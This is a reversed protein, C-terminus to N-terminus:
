RKQRETEVIGEKKIKLMEVHVHCRYYFEKKKEFVEKQRRRSNELTLPFFELRLHKVVRVGQLYYKKLAISNLQSLM